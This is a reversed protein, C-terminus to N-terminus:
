LQVGADKYAKAEDGTIYAFIKLEHNLYQLLYLVEFEISVESKDKRAVKTQWAVSVLYHLPDLEDIKLNTIKMSRTGLKRYRENGEPIAARFSADNKGAIVGAPSAEIFDSAFARTTGEVDDDGALANTFREEYRQFFAKIKQKVTEM